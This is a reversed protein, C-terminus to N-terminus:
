FTQWFAIADNLTTESCVEDGEDTVYVGKPTAVRINVLDHLPEKAINITDLTCDDGERIFVTGEAIFRPRMYRAVLRAEAMSLQLM